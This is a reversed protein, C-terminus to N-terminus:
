YRPKNITELYYREIGTKKIQAGIAIWRKQLHDDFGTRNCPFEHCQYCFDVQKGRHCEKVRCGSFLKCEEQRCGRCGGGAFVGLMAAFAPYLGFQPNDLLGAFREAYISFNGLKKQLKRSLQAIEGKEFAFCTACCLGCPGIRELIASYEIAKM